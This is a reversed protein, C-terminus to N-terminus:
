GAYIPLAGVMPPTLVVVNAAFQEYGSKPGTDFNLGVNIGFTEYGGAPSVVFELGVNAVFTEYAEGAM